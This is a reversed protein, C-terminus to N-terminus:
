QLGTVKMRQLCVDNEVCVNLEKNCCALSISLRVTLNPFLIKNTNHAPEVDTGSDRTNRRAM